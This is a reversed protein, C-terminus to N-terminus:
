FRRRKLRLGKRRGYKKELRKRSRWIKYPFNVLIYWRWLSFPPETQLRRPSIILKSVYKKGLITHYKIKVTRPPNLYFSFTNEIVKQFSFQPDFEYQKERTSIIAEIEELFAEEYIKKMEEAAQMDKRLLEEYSLERIKRAEEEYNIEFVSKKGKIIVFLEGIFAFNMIQEKGAPLLPLKGFTIAGTFEMNTSSHKYWFLEIYKPETQIWYAPGQGQNILVLDGNKNYKALLLPEHQLITSRKIRSTEFVYWLIALLTLTQVLLIGIETMHRM